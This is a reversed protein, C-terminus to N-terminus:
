FRSVKLKPKIFYYAAIVGTPIVLIGTIALYLVAESSLIKFKHGYYTVILNFMLVYFGVLTMFFKLSRIQATNRTERLFMFLTFVIHLGTLAAVPQWFAVTLAGIMVRWIIYLVLTWIIPVEVSFCLIRFWSPLPKKVAIVKLICAV